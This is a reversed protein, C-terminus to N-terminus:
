GNAIGNLSDILAKRVLASDIPDSGPILISNLWSFYAQEFGDFSHAKDDTGPAQRDVWFISPLLHAPCVQQVKREVYHRFEIDRFRHPQTATRPADEKPLSFDRMWGSPFVLSLRQSYPDSELTDPGSPFSLFDDTNQRPRLLLHEVLHFGEASYYQYLHNVTEDIGALVATESPFPLNRIGIKSGDPHCLDFNYTGVGAPSAAYNWEDQGYRLVKHISEEALAVAELETSAEFHFVSSLLVRGNYGPQEWLRWRKEIITDSDVEDYIEFFANIPTLLRHRIRSRIGCLHAIRQELPTLSATIRLAAFHQACALAANQASTVSSYTQPSEGIIRAVTGSRDELQYRRRGGGASVVVYSSSQSALVAAEEAAIVAAAHTSHDIESHLLSEGDLTLFWGFITGDREVQLIGENHHLPNGFAQMRSENLWPADHLLAAKARILRANAAQRRTEMRMPLDVPDIMGEQLEKQAYRHLEQGFAVMAEGQRALLHDFMRNRRDLFRERSELAQRLGRSYPNDPDAVFVSWDGGPPFNVLLKKIDPLEFLARNFYTAQEEPDASFFRNINGLQATLDVLFQEFLLLYGKFQMVAALRETGVSDPLHADGVGYIRPLENQLPIYDEIPLSEGRSVPWEYSPDAPLSAADDVQRLGTFLDRVRAADYYVEADNRVFVIHSKTLSLRPRYRETEVLHLCDQADVTISRNNIYNSLVLDTVAIIDRGSPNEQAVLDTGSANRRQMILRLIDSINVTKINSATFTSDDLFGNRLLPGDFIQEVDAGASRPVSIGTFRVSPALMRDISIFIEALLQELDLSGAVEIRARVAVEQERVVGIHVIDECLNRYTSLYRSVQQMSSHASRVRQAFTDILSGAATSQVAISAANLIDTTVLPPQNLEDTIRLVVWLLVEKVGDTDTYKVEIEGFYSQPEDLPRWKIGGDDLLTVSNIIPGYRFPVAVDEDWYPMAMELTYGTDPVPSDVTVSLTYTNSNLDREAFEVMVEYLGHVNVPTTNITYTFPPDNVPEEFFITETNATTTIRADRILQNDVLVAVFDRPTVPACPLVRHAPVQDPPAHRTGSQLLDPIDLQIRVGLETMAYSFAELLTIGPDHVNHDTWSQQALSRILGMGGDRLAAYNMSTRKPAASSIKLPETM